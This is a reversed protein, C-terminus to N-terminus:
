LGFQLAALVEPLLRPHFIGDASSNGFPVRLLRAKDCTRNVVRGYLPSKSIYASIARMAALLTVWSVAITTAVAATTDGTGTGLVLVRFARLSCHQQHHLANHLCLLQM